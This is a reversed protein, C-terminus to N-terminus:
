EPIEPSLLRVAVVLVVLMVFCAISVRESNIGVNKELFVRANLFLGPFLLIVPIEVLNGMSQHGVQFISLLIWIPVAAGATLYDWPYWSNRKNGIYWAPACLLISILLAAIFIM